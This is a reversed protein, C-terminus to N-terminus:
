VSLILPPSCLIGNSCMQVWLKRTERKSRLNLHELEIEGESAVFEEKKKKVPVVVEGAYKLEWEQEMDDMLVTLTYMNWDSQVIVVMRLSQM